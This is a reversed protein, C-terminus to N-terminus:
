AHQAGMTIYGSRIGRSWSQTSASVKGLTLKASGLWRRFDRVHVFATCSIAGRTVFIRYPTWGMGHTPPISYCLRAHQDAGRATLMCVHMGEQPRM